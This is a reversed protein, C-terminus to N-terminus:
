AAKELGSDRIALNSSNAWISVSEGASLVLGTREFIGGAAPVQAGNEIHDLTGPAQPSTTVAVRLTAVISPDINVVNIVLSAYQATGPVTYLTVYGNANSMSKGLLGNSM